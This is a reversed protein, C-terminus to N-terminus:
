GATLVERVHAAYRDRRRIKGRAAPHTLKRHEIGHHELMQQVNRGLGVIVFGERQRARIRGARLQVRKTNALPADPTDGFLNIFTRAEEGVALADLADALTRGALQRSEWTAGIQKAKDSPKEGVFLYRTSTL